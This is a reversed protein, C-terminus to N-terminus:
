FGSGAAKREATEEEGASIVPVLLLSSQKRDQCRFQIDLRWDAHWLIGRKEPRRSCEKM